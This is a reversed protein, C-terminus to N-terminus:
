QCLFFDSFDCREDVVLLRADARLGAGGLRASLHRGTGRHTSARPPRDSKPTTLLQVVERLRNLRFVIGLCSRADMRVRYRVRMPDTIRAVEIEADAQM